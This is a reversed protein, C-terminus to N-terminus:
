RADGQRQDHGVDAQGARGGGGNGNGNGNGNSSNRGNAGNGAGNGNGNTHGNPGTQSTPRAGRRPQGWDPRSPLREELPTTEFSMWTGWRSRAGGIQFRTLLLWEPHSTRIPTADQLTALTAPQTKRADDNAAVYLYQPADNDPRYLITSRSLAGRWITVGNRAGLAAEASVLDGKLYPRIVERAFARIRAEFAANSLHIVGGRQEALTKRLHHQIQVDNRQWTAHPTAERQQNVTRYFDELHYGGPDNERQMTLELGNAIFVDRLGSPGEFLDDETAQAADRMDNELRQIFRQIDDLRERANKVVRALPNVLAVRLQDEWQACLYAYYLRYARLHDEESDRLTRLAVARALACCIAVLAVVGVATILLPQWAYQGAGWLLGLALVLLVPAAMVGAAFLQGVSPVRARAWAARMALRQTTKRLEQPLYDRPDQESGGLTEHTGSVVYAVNHLSAAAVEQDAEWPGTARKNLARIKSEYESAHERRWILLHSQTATLAEDMRRAYIQARSLGQEDAFWLDGIARSITQESEARAKEWAIEAAERWTTLKGRAELSQREAFQAWTDRDDDDRMQNAVVNRSLQGFLERSALYLDQRLDGDEFFNLTPQLHEPAGPRRESDVVGDELSKALRGADTRVRSRERLRLPREGLSLRWTKLLEAGFTNACYREVAARPFFAMSTGISGIRADIEETDSLMPPVAALGASSRSFPDSLDADADPAAGDATPSYAALPAFPDTASVHASAAQEERAKRALVARERAFIEADTPKPRGSRPSVQTVERFTPAAQLGTAVLGFLTEAIAYRIDSERYARKSQDFEEYMFCFNVQPTKGPQAGLDALWPPPTRRTPAVDAAAVGSSAFSSAFADGAANPAGVLTGTAVGMNVPAAVPALQADSDAMAPLPAFPPTAGIVDLDPISEILPARPTQPGPPPQTAWPSAVAADALPTTDGPARDPYRPHDLLLFSILTSFRHEHLEDMVLQSVQAVTQSTTRSVIHIQAQNESVKYGQKEIDSLQWAGQVKRLLAGFLESFEGEQPLDKSIRVRTSSRRQTKAEAAEDEEDMEDEDAERYSWDDLPLRTARTTGERVAILEVCQRLPGDLGACLDRFRTYITPDRRASADDLDRLVDAVRREDDGIFIIVTPRFQQSVLLPMQEGM